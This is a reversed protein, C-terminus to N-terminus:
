ARYSGPGMAVTLDNFDGGLPASYLRLPTGPVYFLNETHLDLTWIGHFALPGSSPPEIRLMLPLAPIVGAPLRGLLAPSYPNVLQASLGLSSLSLGTVNEFSLTLQASLGLLNVSTSLSNGSVTAGLIQGHAPTGFSVALSVILAASAVV